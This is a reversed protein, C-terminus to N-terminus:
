CLQEQFCTPYRPASKCHLNSLLMKQQIFTAIQTCYILPNYNSVYIAGGLSAHTNEWCVTTHPLISFTSSIYLYM